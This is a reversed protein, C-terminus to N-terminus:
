IRKLLLFEVYPNTALAEYKKCLKSELEEPSVGYAAYTLMQPMEKVHSDFVDHLETKIQEGSNPCELEVHVFGKEKDLQIRQGYTYGSIPQVITFYDHKPVGHKIKIM